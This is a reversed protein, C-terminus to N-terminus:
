WGYIECDRIFVKRILNIDRITFDNKHNQLFSIVIAYGISNNEHAFESLQTESFIHELEKFIQLM